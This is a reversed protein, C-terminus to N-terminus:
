NRVIKIISINVDCRYILKKLLFVGINLFFVFIRIILFLKLFVVFFVNIRKLVFFCLYVVNFFCLYM